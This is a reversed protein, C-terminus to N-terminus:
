IKYVFIHSLEGSSLSFCACVFVVGLDCFSLDFYMILHLCGSVFTYDDCCIDVVFLRFSYCFILHISFYVLSMFLLLLKIKSRTHLNIDTLRQFFM